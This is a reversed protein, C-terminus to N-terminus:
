KWPCTDGQHRNILELYKMPNEDQYHIAEHTKFSTSIVNEPDFVCYRRLLIDDISIPNIHHIYISGEIPFDIIGLDCSDDRIIIKRRFRKWEPSSYLIQNLYRHGGFTTGAVVGDLKLYEFRKEYSNLKIMDSYSKTITMKMM